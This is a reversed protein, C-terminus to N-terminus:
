IKTRITEVPDMKAASYAPVFGAVVGIVVSILNGILFNQASLNLNIDMIQNFLLSLLFVFVIGILGGLFTLMISESLFQSLIFIKKAGLSKQIGIQNTRERVSVFMINAVGFGGVLVSFGGIIWGGITLMYYIPEVGKSIMTSKNLAFNDEMEPKLRRLNRMAGRVEDEVAEAPINNGAKVMIMPEGRGRNTSMIKRLLNVPILVSNDNNGGFLNDGQAELVGIVTLKRGLYVLEQGIPDRSDYLNKAMESGLIISASGTKSEFETFYRGKQINLNTMQEYYHSVAMGSFNSVSNDGAKITYNNVSMTFAVKDIAESSLFVRELDQMEQFSVDPRKMYKWWPYEEGFDWPWKMVYLVDTGLSEISSKIGNKMYDVVTLVSIICFIGITIGLVSLLTRMKNIVLAQFAFKISELIQILREKM